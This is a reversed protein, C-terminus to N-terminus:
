WGSQTSSSWMSDGGGFGGMAKVKLGGVGAASTPSVLLPPASFAEGGGSVGGGGNVGVGGGGGSVQGAVDGGGVGSGWISSGAFDSGYANPISPLSSLLSPTTKGSSTSVSSGTFDSLLSLAAPKSSGSTWGSTHLGSVIPEDKQLWPDLKDERMAGVGSGGGGNLLTSAHSHSASTASWVANGWTSSSLTSASSNGWLSSLTTSKSSSSAASSPSPSPSFHAHSPRLSLSAAAAAEDRRQMELELQRVDLEDHEVDISPTPSPRFHPHAHLQHSHALHQPPLPPPPSPHLQMHPPPQYMHLQLGDMGRSLEDEYRVAEAMERERERMMDREREEQQQQQQHQQQRIVEAAEYRREEEVEFQRRQEDYMAHQPPYPMPISYPLSSHSLSPPQPHYMPQQPLFPPHPSPTRGYGVAMPAFMLSPPPAPRGVVMSPHLPPMGSNFLSRNSPSPPMAHAHPHSPPGSHSHGHMHLQPVPAAALPMPPAFSTSSGLSGVARLPSIPPTRVYADAASIPLRDHSATDFASEYSRSSLPSSPHSHSSHGSHMLQQHHEDMWQQQQQHQQLQPHLMDDVILQPPPQHAVPPLWAPAPQGIDFDPMSPLASPSLATGIPVIPSLTRVTALPPSAPSGVTESAGGAMAVRAGAVASWSQGPSFSPAATTTPSSSSVAAARQASSQWSSGQLSSPIITITPNIIVGSGSVASVLPSGAPPSLAAAPPSATPGTSAASAPPPSPQQESAKQEQRLKWVNKVPGGTAASKSSDSSVAATTIPSSVAAPAAIPPSVTTATPSAAAAAPAAPQKGPQRQQVPPQARPQQSATAAAATAPKGSVAVAATATAPPRQTSVPQRVAQQEKRKSAQVKSAATVDKVLKLEVKRAKLGDSGFLGRVVSESVEVEMGEVSKLEMWSSYGVGGIGGGGGSRGVGAKVRTGSFATPNVNEGVLGTCQYVGHVTRDSANFLLVATRLPKLHRVIPFQQRSLGVQHSHLFSQYSDKTIVLLLGDVLGDIGSDVAAVVTDVEETESSQRKATSPAPTLALPQTPPQATALQQAARKKAAQEDLMAFPNNLVAATVPPSLKAAEKAKVAAASSSSPSPSASVPLSTTPSASSSSTSSAATTKPKNATSSSSSSLMRDLTTVTSNQRQKKKKEKEKGRKTEEKAAEREKETEREEDLRREKDKEGDKEDKEEVRQERKIEREEKKEEKPEIVEVKEEEEKEEDVEGEVEEATKNATMGTGGAAKEKRKATKKKKKRKEGAKGKKVAMEEQLLELELELAVQQAKSEQKKLLYQAAVKRAFEALVCNELMQRGRKDWEEDSLPSAASPHPHHHSHHQHPHHSAHSPVMSTSAAANSSNHHHFHPPPPPEDAKITEVADLMAELMDSMGKGDECMDDAITVCNGTILPPWQRTIHGNLRTARQAVILHDPHDVSVCWIRGDLTPSYPQSTIGRHASLVPSCDSNDSSDTLESWSITWENATASCLPSYGCHLLAHMLQDRFVADSTSTQRKGLGGDAYQLGEIIHRLEAASFHLMWGPQREGNTGSWDDEDDSRQEDDSDPLANDIDNEDQEDDTSTRTISSFRARGDIARDSRQQPRARWPSQTITFVDGGSRYDAEALGAVACREALWAHENSRLQTFTLAATEDSHLKNAANRHRDHLAFGTLQLSAQRQAGAVGDRRARKRSSAHGRQASTLLSFPTRRHVCPEASPRCRCPTYLSSARVVRPRRQGPQRVLMRHSPTVRLMAEDEGGECECQEEATFCLLQQKQKVPPFVLKGTRYCLAESDLEYCAYLVREGRRIRTEIEDVFLMGKDTLVRTDSEPLCDDSIELVDEEWAYQAYSALAARLTEWEGAQSIIESLEATSMETLLWKEEVSISSNGVVVPRSAYAPQSAAVTSSQYRRRVILLHEATPVSMCWVPTLPSHSLSRVHQQQNPSTSNITLIPRAAADATSYHVVWEGAANGKTPECVATYGALICLHLYDDAQQVSRAFLSTQPEGAPNGVASHLGRILLQLQRADLCSAWQALGDDDREELAEETRRESDDDSDEESDEGSELEDISGASLSVRRTATRSATRLRQQAPASATRWPRSAIFYSVWRPHSIVFCHQGPGASAWSDDEIEEESSKVYRADMTARKSGRGAQRHERWWGDCRALPLRHLVAEVKDGEVQSRVSLSVSRLGRVKQVRGCAHWRGYLEIFADEEDVNTLGLTESFPLRGYESTHSLGCSAHCLLQVAEERSAAVEDARVYPVTWRQHAMAAAKGLRVLMRHNDTVLLDVAAADCRFEVLRESEAEILEDMGVSHYQLAYEGPRRLVPCAIRLPTHSTLLSSVTAHSLFGRDTLIDHDATPFCFFNSLEKRQTIILDDLKTRTTDHHATIPVSSSTPSSSASSSSHLSAVFHTPHTSLATSSTASKHNPKGAVALATSNSGAAANGPPLAPQQGGAPGKRGKKLKRKEAAAEELFQLKFTLPVELEAICEQCFCGASPPRNSSRESDDCLFTKSMTILKKFTLQIEVSATNPLRCHFYDADVRYHRLLSIREFGNPSLFMRKKEWFSEGFLSRALLNVVTNWVTRKFCDLSLGCVGAEVGYVQQYAELVRKRWVVSEQEDAELLEGDELERKIRAKMLAFVAYLASENLLNGKLDTKYGSMAEAVETLVIIRETDNLRDFPFVGFNQFMYSDKGVGMATWFLYSSPGSPLERFPSIPTPLHPSLIHPSTAPHSSLAATTPPPSDLTLTATTFELLLRCIESNKSVELATEDKDNMGTLVAGAKLVMLVIPAYGNAAAVHLISNRANDSANVKANKELLLAVVHAQNNDVAVYLPTQGASNREEVATGTSVKCLLNVIDYHGHAASLHLATDGRPTRAILSSVKPLLLSLLRQHGHEAAILFAQDIHQGTIHGTDLLSALHDLLGLRAGDFFMKIDSEELTLATSAAAPQPPPPPLAPQVEHVSPLVGHGHHYDHSDHLPVAPHPHSHSHSHTHTHTHTHPHPPQPTNYTNYNPAPQMTTTAANARDAAAQQQRKARVKDRLQKTRTMAASAAPSSSSSSSSLPPVTVSSSSCCVVASCCCTLLTCVACRETLCRFATCCSVGHLRVSRYSLHQLSLTNPSRLAIVDQNCLM